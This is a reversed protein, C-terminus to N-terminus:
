QVQFNFLESITRNGTADVTEVKWYYVRGSAIEVEYSPDQLGEELLGPPNATAFYLDYSRIDNDVDSASWVLEVSAASPITAGRTPAVAEAPFPAFNEIGPGSNFFRWVASSATEPSGNARSVVFWEYPTGRQITIEAENTASSALSTAGTNLNRLNVQYSDTNPSANWQFLVSSQTDSLITGENCETNNEPFILTAASPIPDPEPESDGGGCSVWLTLGALLLTHRLFTGKM